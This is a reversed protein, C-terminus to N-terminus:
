GDLTGTLCFAGEGSRFKQAHLLHDARGSETQNGVGFWAIPGLPCIGPTQPCLGWSAGGDPVARVLPREQDNKSCPLRKQFVTRDQEDLIVSMANNCHLDIGCYWRENM